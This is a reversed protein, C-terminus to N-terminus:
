SVSDCSGDGDSDVPKLTDVLPNTGCAEEDLDSWGDNDDDLDEVLAPTSTSTGVVVNPMGDGDTDTDASADFPFADAIDVTGDDDDDDDFDDCRKDGDNDPPTSTEDLPDTGCSTEMLDTYGDNDDDLDEVLGTTSVGDLVDPMGDGDTDLYAADDDPFQDNPDIDEGGLGLCGSLLLMATLLLALTRKM